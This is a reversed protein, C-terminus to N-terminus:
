MKAFSNKGKQFLEDANQATVAIKRTIPRCFSQWATSGDLSMEYASSLVFNGLRVGVKDEIEITPVCFPNEKCEDQGLSECHVDEPDRIQCSGGGPSCTASVVPDSCNEQAQCWTNMQSSTLGYSGTPDLFEPHEVTVTQGTPLTINECQTLNWDPFQVSRPVGGNKTDYFSTKLGPVMGYLLNTRYFATNQMLIQYLFDYGNKTDDSWDAQNLWTMTVPAFQGPFLHIFQVGPTSFREITALFDEDENAIDIYTKGIDFTCDTGTFIPGELTRTTDETEVSFENNQDLNLSLVTENVFGLDKQWFWTSTPPPNVNYALGNVAILCGYDKANFETVRLKPKDSKFQFAVQAKSGDVPQEDESIHSGFLSKLPQTITRTLFSFVHGLASIADASTAPANLGGSGERIPGGLTGQAEFQPFYLGFKPAVIQIKIGNFNFLENIAVGNPVPFYKQSSATHVLTRDLFIPSPLNRGVKQTTSLVSAKTQQPTPNPFVLTSKSTGTDFVIYSFDRHDQPDLPSDQLADLMARNVATGLPIVVLTNQSVDYSVQNTFNPPSIGLM